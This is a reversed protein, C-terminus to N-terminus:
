RVIRAVDPAVPRLRLPGFPTPEAGAVVFRPRLGHGRAFSAAADTPPLLRYPYAPTHEVYLQVLEFYRVDPDPWYSPALAIEGPGLRQEVYARAPAAQAALREASVAADGRDALTPWVAYAAVAALVLPATRGTERRVLWLVAPLALVFGPALYHGVIPRAFALLVLTAAGAAWVVPQPERRVLGAVGAVLALALIVLAGRSVLDPLDGFSTSFPEVGASVGRGTLSKALIVLAQLGDPPDLLVPFLLGAAYALGAAAVARLRRVLLAGACVAVLALVVGLVSLQAATPTFPVRDLNLVVCLTVLAAAAAVARRGPRPLRVDVPPRWLGALVLPVLLGVAHLKIMLALGAVGAAGAYAVLSRREVGRGVLYGFVLCALALAVDPRLQVSMPALGPAALWLTGGALGLGWHGFLRTLLVLALVAGALYLAVAVGRFIPRARDLDLLRADVYELRAGRSLKGRALSDAGFALAALETVPLGPHDVFRARYGGVLNLAAGAYSADADAYTWWPSRIPQADVVIVALVLM